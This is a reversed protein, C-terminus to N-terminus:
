NILLELVFPIQVFWGRKSDKELITFRWSQVHRELKSYFYTKGSGQLGVFMIVNQTGKKPQFPEVGPDVLSCLEDFIAKQIIRKKNVGKELKEMDVIKKINNRLQQVLKVNVDSSLLASCIEKLIQDFLQQDIVSASTISRMVGQLKKGLETLVM